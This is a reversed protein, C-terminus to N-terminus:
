RVQSSAVQLQIDTLVATQFNTAKVEIHYAGIPLSPFLYAGSSDTTTSSEIGTAQNRAVLAAGPVVAGTSDTITGSLSATSQALASSASAIFLIILAVLPFVNGRLRARVLAVEM